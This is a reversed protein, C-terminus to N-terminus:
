SPILDSRVPSFVGLLVSPKEGLTEVCHPQNSRVFYGSGPRLELVAAGVRAVLRWALLYGAQEQPHSHPPFKKGPEIELLVLMLRGRWAVKRRVGPEVEEWQLRAFDFFPEM